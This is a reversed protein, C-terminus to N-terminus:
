GIGTMVGMKGERALQEITEYGGLKPKKGRLIQSILPMLVEHDREGSRPLDRMVPLISNSPPSFLCSQFPLNSILTSDQSLSFSVKISGDSLLRLRNCGGCFADTM